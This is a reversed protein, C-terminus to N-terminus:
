DAQRFLSLVSIGWRYYGFDRDVELSETVTGSFSLDTSGGEDKAGASGFEFM